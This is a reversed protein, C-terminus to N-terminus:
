LCLRSKLSEKNATSKKMGKAFLLMKPFVLPLFFKGEVPTHLFNM